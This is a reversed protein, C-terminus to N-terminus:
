EELAPLPFPISFNKTLFILMRSLEFKELNIKTAVDCAFKRIKNKVGLFTFARDLNGDIDLLSHLM